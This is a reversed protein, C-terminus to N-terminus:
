VDLNMKVFYIGEESCKCYEVSLELLLFLKVVFHLYTRSTLLELYVHIVSGGNCSALGGADLKVFCANFVKRLLREKLIFKVSFSDKRENLNFPEDEHGVLSNVELWVM